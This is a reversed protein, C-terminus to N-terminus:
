RKVLKNIKTVLKMVWIPPLNVGIQQLTGLIGGGPVHDAAIRVIQQGQVTYHFDQEPLIVRKNTAPIPKLGPMPLSLTTTHTGTMCLKVTVMNDNERLDGHNFKWDPFGTFLAAMFPLFDKKHMPEVPTVFELEDSVLEDIQKLDHADLAKLYAQVVALATM